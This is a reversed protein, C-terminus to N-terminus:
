SLTRPYGNKSLDGTRGVMTRVAALVAEVEQKVMEWSSTLLNYGSM